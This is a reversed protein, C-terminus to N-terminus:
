QKVEGVAVGASTLVVTADSGDEVIRRVRGVVDDAPWQGSGGIVWEVAVGPVSRLSAELAADIPGAVVVRRGRIARQSLTPGRVEPRPLGSPARESIAPQDRLVALHYGAALGATILVALPYRIARATSSDLRGDIIDRLTLYVTGIAAGLSVLAGVGLLSFLYVRRTISTREEVEGRRLASFWYTAWVPAGVVLLIGAFLLTNVASDGRVLRTGTAAEITAVGLMVMGIAGAVLGGASMVHEYVRDIEVRSGERGERLITRHYWWVLGGSVLSGIADPLSAFHTRAVDSEPSGILWVAAQYGVVAASAIAAVLGGTVGFLVVVFRWADGHPERDVGRLWAVAWVTAGVALLALGRHLSTSDPLTLAATRADLVVRALGSVLQGFAVASVGLGIVASAVDRLSDTLSITLRRDVRRVLYWTASWVIFQGLAFGDYNEAGVIAFLTRYCGVMAVVLPVLTGVTLFISWGVSRLEARDVALRRRSSVGLIVSLPVGLLLMALNLASQDTDDAVLSAGDLIPGLSGAIGASAILLAALQLLYLFLFRVQQSTTLQSESRRMSRVAYGVLALIALPILAGIM